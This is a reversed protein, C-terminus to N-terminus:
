KLYDLKAESNLSRIMIEWDGKPIPDSSVRPDYVYRGDTYVQHYTFGPDKVGLEYLTLTEGQPPLVEIIRGKGKAAKLLDEAIESCDYNRDKRVREQLARVEEAVELIAPYKPNVKRFPIDVGPIEGEKAAFVNTVYPEEKDRHATDNPVKPASDLDFGKSETDVQEPRHGTHDPINLPPTQDPRNLANSGLNPDKSGVVTAMVGNDASSLDTRFQDWLDPFKESAEVNRLTKWLADERNPMKGTEETYKTDASKLIAARKDAPISKSYQGEFVQDFYGRVAKMKQPTYGNLFQNGFHYIERVPVFREYLVQQRIKQQLEAVEYPMLSNDAQQALGTLEKYRENVEKTLAGKQSPTLQAEFTKVHEENLMLGASLHDLKEQKAWLDKQAVQQAKFEAQQAQFEQERQQQEQKWQRQQQEWAQQQEFNQLPQSQPKLEQQVPAVPVSVGPKSPQPSPISPATPQPTGFRQRARNQREWELEKSGAGPLLEFPSIGPTVWPIVWPPVAPIKPLPVGRLLPFGETPFPITQAMLVPAAVANLQVPEPANHAAPLLSGSQPQALMGPTLAASAVQIPEPQLPTPSLEESQQFGVDTSQSQKVDDQSVQATRTDRQGTLEESGSSAAAQEILTEPRVGTALEYVSFKRLGLATKGYGGPGYGAVKKKPKPFFRDPTLLKRLLLDPAKEPREKEPRKQLDAFEKM